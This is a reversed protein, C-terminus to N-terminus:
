YIYREMWEKEFDKIEPMNIFEGKHAKLIQSIDSGIARCEILNFRDIKEVMSIMFSWETYLALGYTDPANEKIFATRNHFATLYDRMTQADWNQANSTYGSINGAHRIIYYKDDGHIAVVKGGLLYKYQTHIDENKYNEEFPYILLIEM